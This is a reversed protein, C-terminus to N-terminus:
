TSAISATCIKKHQYAFTISSQGDKASRRLHCKSLLMKGCHLTGPVLHFEDFTGLRLKISIFILIFIYSTPCFYHRFQHSM